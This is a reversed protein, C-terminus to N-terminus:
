TLKSVPVSKTRVNAVQFVVLYDLLFTNSGETKIAISAYQELNDNVICHKLPKTISHRTSRVRRRARARWPSLVSRKTIRRLHLLTRVARPSSVRRWVGM